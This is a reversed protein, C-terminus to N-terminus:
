SVVASLHTVNGSSRRGRFSSCASDRADRLHLAHGTSRRACIAPEEAPSSPAVDQARELAVPLRRRCGTSAARVRDDAEWGSQQLLAEHDEVRGPRPSRCRAGASQVEVQALACASSKMAASAPTVFCVEVHFSCRAPSSWCLGLAEDRASCSRRATPRFQLGVGGASDVLAPSPWGRRKSFVIARWACTNAAIRALSASWRSPSRAAVAGSTRLWRGISSVGATLRAVRMGGAAVDHARSVPLLHVSRRRRACLRAAGADFM